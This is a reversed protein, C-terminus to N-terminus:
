TACTTTQLAKRNKMAMAVLVGTFILGLVFGCTVLLAAQLAGGGRPEPSPPPPPPPPGEKESDPPRLAMLSRQPFNKADKFWPKAFTFCLIPRACTASKNATGRHLVRYDFIVASGAPVTARVIPYKRMSPLMARFSRNSFHHSTPRFETPGLEDTVDVLPVFVNVVHAPLHVDRFLHDGDIHWAQGSSGPLSMHLTIFLRKCDAGLLRQVVPYFAANRAIERAKFPARDMGYMMEYRRPKREVIEAFGNRTGVAFGEGHTDKADTMATLCEEFAANGAQLCADIQGRDFAREVVAVGRDLVCQAVADADHERAFSLDRLTIPPSM